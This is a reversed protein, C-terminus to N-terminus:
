PYEHGGFHLLKDGEPLCLPTLPYSIGPILRRAREFRSELVVDFAEPM